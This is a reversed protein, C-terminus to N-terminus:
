VASLHSRKDAYLRNTDRHSLKAHQAQLCREMQLEPIRRHSAYDTENHHRRASLLFSSNIVVIPLKPHHASLVFITSWHPEQPSSLPSGGAPEIAAHAM